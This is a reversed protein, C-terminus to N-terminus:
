FYSNRGRAQSEWIKQPRAAKVYRWFVHRLECNTKRTSSIKYQSLAIQSMGVLLVQQRSGFFSYIFTECVFAKILLSPNLTLATTFLREKDVPEKKPRPSGTVEGCMQSDHMELIRTRIRKIQMGFEPAWAKCLSCNARWSGEYVTSIEFSIHNPTM